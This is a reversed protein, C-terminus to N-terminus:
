GSFIKDLCARITEMTFPKAIFFKAGIEKGRTVTEDDFKSSLLMFPIDRTEMRNQIAECLELGDIKPMMIDTIILDPQFEELDRLAELGNYASLVEYGAELLEDRLMEQVVESDEVIMIKKKM